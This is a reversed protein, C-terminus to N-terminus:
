FFIGSSCLLLFCATSKYPSCVRVCVCVFVCVSCAAYHPIYSKGDDHPILFFFSKLNPFFVETKGRDSFREETKKRRLRMKRGKKRQEQLDQQKRKEKGETKYAVSFESSKKM